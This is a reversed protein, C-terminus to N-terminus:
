KKVEKWVDKPNVTTIQDPNINNGKFKGFEYSSVVNQLIPSPSKSKRISDRLQIIKLDQEINTQEEELSISQPEKGIPTNLKRRKNLLEDEHSTNNNESNSESNTENDINFTEDELHIQFDDEDPTPCAKRKRPRKLSETTIDDSNLSDTTQVGLEDLFPWPKIKRFKELTNEVSLSKNETSEQNETCDEIFGSKASKLKFINLRYDNIGLNAELVGKVNSELLKIQEVLSEQDKSSLETWHYKKLNDLEKYRNLQLMLLDETLKWFNNFNKSINGRRSNIKPEMLFHEILKEKNEFNFSINKIYVQNISLNTIEKFDFTLCKNEKRKIEKGLQEHANLHSCFTDHEYKSVEYKEDNLSVGGVSYIINNVKFKNLYYRLSLRPLYNSLILISFFSIFWNLNFLGILLDHFENFLDIFWNFYKNFINFLLNVIKNINSLYPEIMEMILLFYAKFIELTFIFYPSITEMIIKKIMRTYIKILLNQFYKLIKLYININDNDMYDIISSSVCNDNIMIFNNLQNNGLIINKTNDFATTNYLNLYNLNNDFFNIKEDLSKNLLEFETTYNLKYKKLCLFTSFNRRGKYPSVGIDRVIYYKNNFLRDKNLYTQRGAAIIKNEVYLILSFKNEYKVLSTINVRILPKTDIWLGDNNYIKERKTFADHKLIAEKFGFSVSGHSYDTITNAKIAKINKDLYYMDMFDGISLSNNLVGKSKIVLYELESTKKNKIPKKLLLCYTKNSMFYGEKIEYELKFQGLGNGVLNEGLEIDTVISDTDTYYINGGRKLIDLKIKSMFIRSYSLIMAATSISVDDFNDM